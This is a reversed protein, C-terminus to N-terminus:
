HPERPPGRPAGDGEATRLHAWGKGRKNAEGRGRADLIERASYSAQM